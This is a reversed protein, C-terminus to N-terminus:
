KITINVRGLSKKLKYMDEYSLKTKKRIEAETKGILDGIRVYGRSMLCKIAQKPADLTDIRQGMIIDAKGTPQFTLYNEEIIKDIRRRMSLMKRLTEDDYDKVTAIWVAEKDINRYIKERKNKLKRARDVGLLMYRKCKPHRLKILAVSLLGDVEHETIKINSNERMWETIEEITYGKEYTLKVVNEEDQTLFGNKHRLVYNISTDIDEPIEGATTAHAIQNAYLREQWTFLDKNDLSMESM